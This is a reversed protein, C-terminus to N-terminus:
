KDGTIYYITFHKLFTKMKYPNQMIKTLIIIHNEVYVSHSSKM